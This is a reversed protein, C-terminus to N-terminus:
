LRVEQQSNNIVDFLADRDDRLERVINRRMQESNKGANWLYRGFDTVEFLANIGTLVPNATLCGFLIDIIGLVKFSFDMGGSLKGLWTSDPERYANGGVGMAAGASAIKQPLTYGAFVEGYSTKTPIGAKGTRCQALVAAFGSLTIGAEEQFRRIVLRPRSADVNRRMYESFRTEVTDNWSGWFREMPGRFFNLFGYYWKAFDAANKELVSYRGNIVKGLEGSMREWQRMSVSTMAKKLLEVAIANYATGEIIVAETDGGAGSVLEDYATVLVAIKDLCGDAEEPPPQRNECRLLFEAYEDIDKAFESRFAASYRKIATNEDAHVAVGGAILCGAILLGTFKQAINRM